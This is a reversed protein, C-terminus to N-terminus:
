TGSVATKVAPIAANMRTKLKRLAFRAKNDDLSLKDLTKFLIVSAEGLDDLLQWNYGEPCGFTIHGMETNLKDGLLDIQVVEEETVAKTIKKLAQIQESDKEQLNTVTKRALEAAQVARVRLKRM